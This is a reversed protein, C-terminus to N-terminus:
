PRPRVRTAAPHLARASTSFVDVQFRSHERHSLRQLSGTPFRSESLRFRRAAPARDRHGVGHGIGQAPMSGELEFSRSAAPQRHRSDLSTNVVVIPVGISLLPSCLANLSMRRVAPSGLMKPAPPPKLRAVYWRVTREAVPGALPLLLRRIRKATLRRDQRLWQEIQALWRDLHRPRSVARRAPATTQAVARRVTKIDLGLREAIQKKPVGDVVHMQRIEAWQSMRIVEPDEQSSDPLVVTDRRKRSTGPFRDETHSLSGKKMKAPVVKSGVPCPQGEEAPAGQDSMAALIGRVMDYSLGRPEPALVLFRSVHRVPNPANPGDLQQYLSYLAQRYHNCTTAAHTRRLDTLAERLGPRDACPAVPPRVAHGVLHTTPAAGAGVTASTFVSPPFPEIDTALTGRAPQTM